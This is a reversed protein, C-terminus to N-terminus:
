KIGEEELFTDVLKCVAKYDKAEVAFVHEIDPFTAKFKAQLKAFLKNTKAPDGSYTTVRNAVGHMKAEYENKNAPTPLVDKTVAAKKAPKKAPEKKPPDGVKDTYSPGKESVTVTGTHGPPIVNAGKLTVLVDLADAIRELSKEISM